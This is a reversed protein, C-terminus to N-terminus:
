TTAAPVDADSGSERKGRRQYPGMGLRERLMAVHRRSVHVWEFSFENARGAVRVGVRKSHQRRLEPLEIRDCNVVVGQHVQEFKAPLRELFDVFALSSSGYVRHTTRVYSWKPRIRARRIWPAEIRDALLAQGSGIYLISAVDITIDRDSELEGIEVVTVRSLKAENGRFLNDILESKCCGSAYIEEMEGGSSTPFRGTLEFGSPESYLDRSALDRFKKKEAGAFAAYAAFISHTSPSHSCDREFQPRPEFSFEVKGGMSM